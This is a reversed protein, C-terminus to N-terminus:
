CEAKGQFTMKLDKNFPVLQGGAVELLVKDVSGDTAQYVLSLKNDQQTINWRGQQQWNGSITNDMITKGYKEGNLFYYGDCHDVYEAYDTGYVPGGDRWTYIIKKGLLYQRAQQPNMGSSCAGLIGLTVISALVISAKYLPKM